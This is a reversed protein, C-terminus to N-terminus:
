ASELNRPLWEFFKKRHQDLSWFKGNRFLGPHLAKFRVLSSTSARPYNEPMHKNYSDMFESLSIQIISTDINKKDARMYSPYWADSLIVFAKSM